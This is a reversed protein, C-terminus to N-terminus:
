LKPVFLFLFCSVNGRYNPAQMCMKEGQKSGRYVSHDEAESWRFTAWSGKTTLKEILYLPM